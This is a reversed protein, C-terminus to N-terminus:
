LQIVSQVIVLSDTTGGTARATVRYNTRIDAVPCPFTTSACGAGMNEIIYSPNASANLNALAGSYAIAKTTWNINEWVPPMPATVSSVSATTATTCGAGGAPYHGVVTCNFAPLPTTTGLYTEGAKLASEAAQFALNRDRMNGAMKEELSTAQLGGTGILTMLLLVILSIVLVAGKQQKATFLHGPYM